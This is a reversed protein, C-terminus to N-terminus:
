SVAIRGSWYRQCPQTAQLLRQSKGEAEIATGHLPFSGDAKPDPWEPIGHERVCQAFRKLAPVDKPKPEQRNDRGSRKKATSNMRDLIAKCEPVSELAQFITKTQDPGGAPSFTIDDGTANVKPDPFTPYGHARACQSMSRGLALVQQMNNASSSPSASAAGHGSACGALALVSAAALAAPALRNM